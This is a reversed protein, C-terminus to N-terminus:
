FNWGPQGKSLRLRHGMSVLSILSLIDKAYKQESVKNPNETQFKLDSKLNLDM